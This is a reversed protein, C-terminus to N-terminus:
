PQSLVPLPEYLVRKVIVSGRWVVIGAGGTASLDPAHKALEPVRRRLVRLHLEAWSRPAAATAVGPAGVAWSRARVDLHFTRFRAGHRDRPIDPLLLRAPLQMRHPSLTESARDIFVAAALVLPAQRPRPRGPLFADELEPECFTAQIVSHVTAKGVQQALRGAYLGAQSVAEGDVQAMEITLRYDGRKPDAPLLELLCVGPTNMWPPKGPRFTLKTVDEGLAVRAAPAQERGGLLV